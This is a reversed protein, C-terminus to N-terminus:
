KLTIHHSVKKQKFGPNLMTSWLDLRGVHFNHALLIENHSGYGEEETAGEGQGV